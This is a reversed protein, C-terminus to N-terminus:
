LHLQFQCCQWPFIISIINQVCRDFKKGNVTLQYTIPTTGSSSLYESLQINSKLYVRCTYFGSDSELVPSISLTSVFIAPTLASANSISFRQTDLASEGDNVTWEVEAMVPTTITDALLSACTLSLSEGATVNGSPLQSIAVDIPAPVTHMSQLFSKLLTNTSFFVYTYPLPLYIIYQYWITQQTFSLKVLM